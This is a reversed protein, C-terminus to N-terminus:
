GICLSMSDRGNHFGWLIFSHLDRNGQFNSNELKKEFTTKAYNSDETVDETYQEDDEHDNCITIELKQIVERPNARSRDLASWRRYYRSKRVMTVFQTLQHTQSLTM